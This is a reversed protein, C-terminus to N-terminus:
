QLPYDNMMPFPEFDWERARDGKARGSFRAKKKIYDGAGLIRL